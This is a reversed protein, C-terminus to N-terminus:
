GSPDLELSTIRGRWYTFEGEPLEWRVDARSPVRVGGVVGYDGFVGRWPRRVVSQRESRPRAGTFSGAVDGDEDFELRVAASEAGVRAAVEVSKAGVARWEPEFQRADRPSGLVARRPIEYGRRRSSGAWTRQMVPVLGLLRAELRGEGGRYDDVVHLRVLPLIPFLARWSIAIEAVAFDEVASFRM